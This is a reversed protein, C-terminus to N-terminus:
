GGKDKEYVQHIISCATQVRIFASERQKKTKKDAAM